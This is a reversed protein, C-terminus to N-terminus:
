RANLESCAFGEDTMEAFPPTKFEGTPSPDACSSVLRRHKLAFLLIDTEMLYMVFLILYQLLSSRDFM